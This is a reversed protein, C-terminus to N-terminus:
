LVINYGVRSRKPIPTDCHAYRRDLKYPEWEDPLPCIIEFGRVQAHTPSRSPTCGRWGDPVGPSAMAAV